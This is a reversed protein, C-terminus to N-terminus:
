GRGFYLIVFGQVPLRGKVILVLISGERRKVWIIAKLDIPFGVFGSIFLEVVHRGSQPHNRTVRFTGVFRLSVAGRFRRIGKMAKALATSLTLRLREVSIIEVLHLM